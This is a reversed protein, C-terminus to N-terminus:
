SVGLQVRFATLLSPEGTCVIEEQEIGSSDTDLFSLARFGFLAAPSSQIVGLNSRNASQFFNM